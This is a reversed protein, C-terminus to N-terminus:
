FIIDDPSLFRCLLDFRFDVNGFEVSIFFICDRKKSPQCSICGLMPLHRSSCFLPHSSPPFPSIPTVSSDRIPFRSLPDIQEVPTCSCRRPQKRLLLSHSRVPRVKHLETQTSNHLHDTHAFNLNVQVHLRELSIGLATSTDEGEM